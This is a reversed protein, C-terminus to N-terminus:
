QKTRQDPTMHIDSLHLVRLPAHGAPLVPVTVRRLTYQRAEWAAYAALGAGAAVVAEASRRVFPPLPM